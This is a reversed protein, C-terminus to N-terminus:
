KEKKYNRLFGTRSVSGCRQFGANEIGKISAANTNRVIMYFNEGALEKNATITELVYRYAGRGRYQEATVCPGIEYDAKGLFPFKSCSPVVFATHVIQEGDMLYVIQYRGGTIVWFYLRSLATKLQFKDPKKFLRFLGPRFWCIDCGSLFDNTIVPEACHHKVYLYHM